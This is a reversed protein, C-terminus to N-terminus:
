YRHNIFVIVFLTRLGNTVYSCNSGFLRGRRHEEHPSNSVVLRPALMVQSVMRVVFVKLFGPKGFWAM